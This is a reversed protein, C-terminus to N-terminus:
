NTLAAQRSLLLKANDRNDKASLFDSPISQVTRARELANQTM